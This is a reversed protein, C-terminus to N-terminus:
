SDRWKSPHQHRFVHVRNRTAKEGLGLELTLAEVSGMGLAEVAQESRVPLLGQFHSGGGGCNSRCGSWALRVPWGAVHLM